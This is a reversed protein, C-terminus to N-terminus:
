TLPCARVSINYSNRPSRDPVLIFNGPGEPAANPKSAYGTFCMQDATSHGADQHNLSRIISWKDMIKASLPLLDCIQIGSVNTTTAGFSGRYDAPAEPKPDWTEHQSPGGRMWLIIANNFKKEALASGAEATSQLRLLDALSLGISGLVGAKVFSRRSIQLGAAAERCRYINKAM